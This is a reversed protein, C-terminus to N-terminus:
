SALCFRSGTNGHNGGIPAVRAATDQSHVGSAQPQVVRITRQYVYVAGYCRPVKEPSIPADHLGSSGARKGPRQLINSQAPSLSDVPRIIFLLSFLAFEKPFYKAFANTLHTQELVQKATCRSSFKHYIERAQDPKVAAAALRILSVGVQFSPVGTEEIKKELALAADFNPAMAIQSVLISTTPALGLEALLKLLTDFESYQFRKALVKAPHEFAEARQEKSVSETM